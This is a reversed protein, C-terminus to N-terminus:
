DALLLQQIPALVVGKIEFAAQLIDYPGTGNPQYDVIVLTHVNQWDEVDSLDPTELSFSASAGNGLTEIGTQVGSRVYSGTVGAVGSAVNVANIEYVMAHITARNASSLTIGSLNTVEIEFLFYDKVRRSTASIACMPNRELSTDVMPTFIASYDVVPGSHIQNGSDIM